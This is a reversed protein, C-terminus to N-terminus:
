WEGQDGGGIYDDVPDDVENPHEGNDYDKPDRMKKEM